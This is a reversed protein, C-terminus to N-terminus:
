CVYFADEIHHIQPEAQGFKVTIIDFRVDLDIKNKMVYHNAAKILMRQKQRNVSLEPEGAYMSKRSKVEVVLLQNKSRAIIDIEQHNSQWNKELITCGKDILYDAALAEGEKGIDHIEAM